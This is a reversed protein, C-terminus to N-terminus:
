ADAAYELLLYALTRAEDQTLLHQEDGVSLAACGRSLRVRMVHFGADGSIEMMPGKENSTRCYTEIVGGQMERGVGLLKIM